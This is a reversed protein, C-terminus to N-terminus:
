RSKFTAVLMTWDANPAGTAMQPGVDSVVRDETLNGDFTSRVEFGTGGALTQSTGFGFVLEPKARIMVVPSRAKDTGKETGTSGGYRDLPDKLALGAYEHVYLLIESVAGAFRVTVIDNSGGKVDEAYSIFHNKGGSGDIPGIATKYTNGHTDTVDALPAAHEAAIAVVIAHHAGVNGLTQTALTGPTTVKTASAQVFAIPEFPPPPPGPVGGDDGLADPSADPPADSAASFSSCATCLAAVAAFGRRM